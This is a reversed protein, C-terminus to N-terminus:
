SVLDDDRPAIRSMDCSEAIKEERRRGRNRSMLSEGLRSMGQKIVGQQCGTKEKSDGTAGLGKVPLEAQFAGRIRHPEVPM